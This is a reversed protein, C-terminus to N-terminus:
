AKAAQEALGIYPVIHNRIHSKYGAITSPRLSRSHVDMWNNMYEEPTQRSGASATMSYTFKDAQSAYRSRASNSGKQNFIKKSYTKKGEPTQYKINVDYVTGARGTLEGNANRKNKVQRSSVAM